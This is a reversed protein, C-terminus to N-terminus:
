QLNNRRTGSREICIHGVCELKIQLYVGTKIQGHHTTSQDRGEQGFGLAGISRASLGAVAGDDRRDVLATCACVLDVSGVKGDCRGVGGHRGFGVLNTRTSVVRLEIARAGFGCLRGEPKNQRAELNGRGLGSPSVKVFWSWGCGSMECRDPACYVAQASCVVTCTQAVSVPGSHLSCRWVGGSWLAAGM